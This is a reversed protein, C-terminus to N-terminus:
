PQSDSMGGKILCRTKDDLGERCITTNPGAEIVGGDSKLGGEKKEDDIKAKAEGGKNQSLREGQGRWGRGGIMSRGDRGREMEGEGVEQKGAQWVTMILSSFSLGRPGRSGEGSVARLSSCHKQTRTQTLTHAYVSGQEGQVELSPRHDSEM